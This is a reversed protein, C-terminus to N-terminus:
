FSFSSLSSQSKDLDSVSVTDADFYNRGWVNAESFELSVPGGNILDENMVWSPFHSDTSGATSQDDATLDVVETPTNPKTEILGAFAEKNKALACIAGGLRAGHGRLLSVLTKPPFGQKTLEILTNKHQTLGNLAEGMNTSSGGLISSIKDNSFGHNILELLTDKHQALAKIAQGVCGGSGALMSSVNSVTFGLKSLELLNQKNQVLSDLGRGVNTSTGTLISSLNGTTFGFKTLESITDKNEALAELAATVQLRSKSLISVINGIKFSTSKQISKILDLNSVLLSAVTVFTKLDKTSGIISTLNSRTFGHERLPQYAPHNAFLDNLCKVENSLPKPM